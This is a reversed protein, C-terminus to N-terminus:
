QEMDTRSRFIESPEESRTAWPVYVVVCVVAALLLLSGIVVVKPTMNM